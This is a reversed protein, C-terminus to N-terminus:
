VGWCLLFPFVQSMSITHIGYQLGFYVNKSMAAAYGSVESQNNQVWTKMPWHYLKSPNISQSGSLPFHSLVPNLHQANLWLARRAAWIGLFICSPRSIGTLQNAPKTPPKPKLLTDMNYNILLKQKFPMNQRWKLVNEAFVFILVFRSLVSRLYFPIMFLSLSLFLFFLSFFSSLSCPSVLSSVSCLYAFHFSLYFYLCLVSIISCWLIHLLPVFPFLPFFLSQSCLASFLALASACLFPSFHSLIWGLHPMFFLGFFLCFYVCHLSFVALRRRIQMLFYTM